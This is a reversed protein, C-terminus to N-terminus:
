FRWLSMKRKFLHSWEKKKRKAGGIEETRESAVGWKERYLPSFLALTQSCAWKCLHWLPILSRHRNIPGAPSDISGNLNQCLWSITERPQCCGVCWGQVSPRLPRSSGRCCMLAGSGTECMVEFALSVGPTHRENKFISKPWPTWM